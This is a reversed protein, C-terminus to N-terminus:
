RARPVDGCAIVRYGPAHVHISFTGARLEAWTTHELVTVSRGDVVNHLSSQVNFNPDIRCVGIHLHAPLSGRLRVPRRLAIVIRPHGAVRTLTATGSVGSGDRAKLQVVLPAGATGHAAGTLALAAAALVGLVATRTVM